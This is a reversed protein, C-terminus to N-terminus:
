KKDSVAKVSTLIVPAGSPGGAKLDVEFIRIGEVPPFGDFEKVDLVWNFGENTGSNTGEHIEEEVLFENMKEKAFLVLSTSDSSAKALGMSGSFLRIVAVIGLGLIAVSALVELLTFGRNGTETLM